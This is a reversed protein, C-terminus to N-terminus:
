VAPKLFLVQAASTRGEEFGIASAALYLLWTRYTRSGVLSRCREQNRQLNAVWAKCTLAYHVRFDRMGIVEFGAREGERLVDDLHILEGSPFVSKRISLTDPRETVGRPRVIGSNLLRGRPRLLEFMKRLYAALRAKGVHEFMGVSAIKDYRGNMERYDCLCVTLRGSLGRREIEHQVYERQQAAITCGRAKVGFREAAHFILGGWGCGVDLFSEDPCLVLERCILDLKQEQARELNEEVSEFYGASYVLRSDLFLSYFENPREGDHEIGKATEDQTGLLSHIRLHELRALMAYILHRIGTHPQESFYRVAEMLDGQVDFEGNVFANAASYADLKLIQKPDTNGAGVLTFRGQPDSFINTRGGPQRAWFHRPKSAGQGSSTEM